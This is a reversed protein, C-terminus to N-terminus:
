RVLVKQTTDKTRIVYVGSNPLTFTENGKYILLGSLTYIEMISNNTNVIDRGNILLNNDKSIASIGNTFDSENLNWFNCWYEAEKYADIAGIPVNVEINMYQVNTFDPDFHDLWSADVNEFKYPSESHCNITKLETFDSFYTIPITEINAGISLSELYDSCCIPSWDEKYEWGDKGYFQAYKIIRGIYLNKIHFKSNGENFSNVLSIANESDEFIITELNSCYLFANKGISEVNSPIKISILGSSQFTAEGIRELSDPLQISTLSTCDKFTGLLGKVGNPLSVSSLNTCGEFLGQGFGGEMPFEFSTLSTCGSFAYAGLYIPTSDSLEVSELNKCSGFAREGITKVSQPITILRLACGIFARDKIEILNESFKISSLTTCFQFASEGIETVSNTMTVYALKDCGYFASKGISLVSNPIDIEKLSDCGAFSWEEITLVSNPISISTLETCSQFAKDGIAIVDITRNNYTVAAPIVVEGSYKEDGSTVECTFDTVSVMNYYIGDIVFDYAHAMISVLSM